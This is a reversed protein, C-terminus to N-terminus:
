EVYRLASPIDMRELQRTVLTPATASAVLGIGITVLYSPVTVSTLVALEPLAAPFITGLLWHLVLTGAVIAVTAAAVGLILSEAVGILVIRRVPTGFAMMTAHERAREDSGIRCSNYAVLFALLGIVIELVVFLGAVLSLVNRITDALARAPLAWAVGPLSSISRQLRDISIGRRPLLTATNVIGRLGMIPEDRLDMYAVFRYPSAIVARVPLRTDTFGYGTAERVSHRLLVHSGVTVGLDSAAKQSIVIGGQAVPHTAIASPVALPNALDVMSISAPISTRGRILYGGTNLGLAHRAVLPSDIIRVVAPSTAPQYSTLSVLLQNGSAGSLIRTGTDVTATTSDTGGLAAFLPALILGIALTTMASRTPAITIRRVPAQTLTSGPLRLQRLVRASRHHSSRLHPPLLADTPPVRIARLVPYASAAVPIAFGLAAARLFLEPQWPTHWIPLPTQTRIISMVWAGIGWGVLVGMLVGAAAVEASLMLPRISIERPPVGLAMAIGIDRRQAEVVRRTLNFAAFGAGALILAAFVDYIQQESNIEDYLSRTQPADRRVTVTLPVRPLVAPLERSLTAAVQEVDAGRRVLAVVDNAQGFRGALRQVLGIPGYVVARTAAGQITAGFTTTTNLYEPELVTGVYRVPVGAITITGAPPLKHAQAFHKDLLVSTGHADGPGISRGAAVRWRDIAVAQAVDIGVVVGAAPIRGQRGARVPLDAVLRGEIASLGAGGASRVAALLQGRPVYLGTPAAVEIDHAALGAFSLNLSDRRWVSTSGLGAYVGSGLAIIAAIAAVQPARRRLDRWSWRLWFRIGM